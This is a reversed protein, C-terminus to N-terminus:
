NERRNNNSGFHSSLQPSFFVIVHAMALRVELILHVTLNIDRIGLSDRISATVSGM